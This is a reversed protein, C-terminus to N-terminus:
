TVVRRRAVRNVLDADCRVDEDVIRRPKRVQAQRAQQIAFGVHLQSLGDLMQLDRGTMCLLACHLTAPAAQQAASSTHEQGAADSASVGRTAIIM